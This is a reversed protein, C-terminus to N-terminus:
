KEFFVEHFTRCLTLSGCVKSIIVRMKMLQVAISFGSVVVDDHYDTLNENM